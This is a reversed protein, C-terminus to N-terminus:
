LNNVNVDMTTSLRPLERRDTLQLQMMRYVYKGILDFELNVADGVKKKGLITNQHTYPLLAVSFTESDVQNVTLSVGDIAISGKPILYLAQAAPIAIHLYLMEKELYSSRIIGICDVHGSVLHGDLRSGLIMAREINIQSGVKLQGLTTTKLSEAGIEFGIKLGEQYLVTLCCGDIAISAGVVIPEDQNAFAIEVNHHQSQDNKTVSVVTGIERVIGTFM